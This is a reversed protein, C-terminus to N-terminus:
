SSTPIPSQGPIDKLQHYANVAASTLPAALIAGMVGFLLTGTTVTILV